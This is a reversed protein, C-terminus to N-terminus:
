PFDTAYKSNEYVWPTGTTLRTEIDSPRPSNARLNSRGVDKGLYRDMGPYRDWGHEISRKTSEIYKGRVRLATVPRASKGLYASHM